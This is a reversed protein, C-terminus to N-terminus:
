EDKLSVKLKSAETDIPYHATFVKQSEQGPSFRFSVTIFHLM